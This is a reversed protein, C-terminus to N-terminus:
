NCRYNSNISCWTGGVFGEYEWQAQTWGGIIDISYPRGDAAKYAITDSENSYPDKKVRGWRHDYDDRLKEVVELAFKSHSGRRDPFGIEDAVQQVVSFYNIPPCCNYPANAADATKFVSWYSWPSPDVVIVSADPLFHTKVGDNKGRVRWYYTTSASLETEYAQGAPRLAIHTSGSRAHTSATLFVGASSASTAVQIEYIIEGIDVASGENTGNTVSFHPTFDTITIGDIPYTPTPTGIVVAAKPPIPAAATTFTFAASWPGDARTGTTRDGLRVRAKWSYTTEAELLATVTYSSTGSAGKSVIGVDVRNTEANANGGKYLWFEYTEEYDTYPNEANTATLTPAVAATENNAARDTACRTTTCPIGTAGNSPLQLSVYLDTVIVALAPRTAVTTPAAPSTYPNQSGCAVTVMGLVGFLVVRRCWM